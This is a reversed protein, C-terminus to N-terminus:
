SLNIIIILINIFIVSSLKPQMERFNECAESELEFRGDWFHYKILRTLRELPNENLRSETLVITKRGLDEALALEQM